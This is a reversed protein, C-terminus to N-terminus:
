KIDPECGLTAAMAKDWRRLAVEDPISPYCRAIIATALIQIGTLGLMAGLKPHKVSARIVRLTDDLNAFPEEQGLARIAATTGALGESIMAQVQRYSMRQSMRRFADVSALIAGPGRHFSSQYSWIARVEGPDNYKTVTEALQHAALLGYGIGSAHVGFVQCAADGVLAVGEVGLRSYPRRLPIPGAGGRIRKGIWPNQSRFEKLRSHGSGCSAAELTGTVINVHTLNVNTEIYLTSFGGWIGMWAFADGPRVGQRELFHWAMSRDAIESVESAALCIDSPGPPPCDKALEPVQRRIAGHFGTADVILRAHLKEASRGCFSVGIPRGNDMLVKLDKARDFCEVGQSAALSHLQSVFARMNIAVAPAEEIVVRGTGNHELIVFPHTKVEHPADIGAIEFFRLPVANDWSPGARNLPGKEVMAVRLGKKALMYASASGAPGAGAVVVDFDHM